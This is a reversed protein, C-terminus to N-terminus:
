TSVVRAMNLLSCESCVDTMVTEHWRLHRGAHFAGTLLSERTEWGSLKATSRLETAARQDPQRGGRLRLTEWEVHGRMVGCTDCVLVAVLEVSM